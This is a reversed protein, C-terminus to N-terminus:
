ISEFQLNAWRDRHGGGKLLNIAQDLSVNKPSVLMLRHADGMPIVKMKVPSPKRKPKICGFYTENVVTDSAIERAEDADMPKTCLRIDLGTIRLSRVKERLEQLSNYYWADNWVSGAARNSRQGLCGLLLWTEIDDQAQRWMVTTCGPLQTIHLTCTTYADVCATPSRKRDDDSHPLLDSKSARDGFIPPIIDLGIKSASGSGAADGWVTSVHSEGRGAIRAWERIMGRVSPVRIEPQNAFRKCFCDTNLTITYQKTTIM